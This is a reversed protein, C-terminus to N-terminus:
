SLKIKRMVQRSSINLFQSSFKHEPCEQLDSLELLKVPRTTKKKNKM